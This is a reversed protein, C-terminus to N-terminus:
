QFGNQIFNFSEYIKAFEFGKAFFGENSIIFQSPLNKELNQVDQLYHIKDKSSSLKVFSNDYLDILNINLKKSIKPFIEKQLFTSVCKGLGIHLLKM